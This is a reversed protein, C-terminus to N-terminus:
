SHTAASLQDTLFATLRDLATQLQAANVSSCSLRLANVPTNYFHAMPTWLVGYDQASRALLEDDVPFPVTLVVFFGGTPTTWSLEGHHAALHDTITRLNASYIARERHNAADLSFDNALLKGGIVAQAIPSTNVTVMSKLKALEDALIGDATTQDAVVYGVRAGPLGTKAFSGLYIVRRDTDLSKLTPLRDAGDAPFLGYPNDELLVLDEQAAIELLRRRTDLDMSLGSPNAFDPMVYFARPRRGEARATKIASLLEDLDGDPVPLVPLDVLRAAGTIGVYTPATALLVDTDDARFARLTLLMAEQCGATVVIAEPDVHINEDVALHRAVLDHVIGKTRGYQLITRQVAPESLGQDRLHTAFRALYRPVDDLDFFEETPRGAALSIADPYRHSIENLFNMSNLARDTLSGHLTSVDLDPM